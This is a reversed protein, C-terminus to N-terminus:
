RRKKTENGRKGEGEMGVVCKRMEVREAVEERKGRWGRPWVEVGGSRAKKVVAPLLMNM